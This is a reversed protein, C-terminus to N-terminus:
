KCNLELVCKFEQVKPNFNTLSKAWTPSLSTCQRTCYKLRTYYDVRLNEKLSKQKTMVIVMQQLVHVIM